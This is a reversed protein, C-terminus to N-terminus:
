GMRGTTILWTTRRVGRSSRGPRRHAGARGSRRAGARAALELTVIRSHGTGFTQLVGGAAITDAVLTATSEIAGLQTALIQELASRAINAYAPEPM